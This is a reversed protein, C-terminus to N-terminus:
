FKVPRPSLNVRSIKIGSGVLPSNRFFESMTRGNKKASERRKRGQWEEPSVLVGVLKGNRTIQQAGHERATEIVESFKAKAEAVAWTGMGTVEIHGNYDNHDYKPRQRAKNAAVIPKRVWLHVFNQDSLPGTEPGVSRCAVQVRKQKREPTPALRRLM